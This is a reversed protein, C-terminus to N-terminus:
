TRDTQGAQARGHFFEALCCCIDDQARTLLGIFRHVHAYKGFETRTGGGAARPSSPYKVRNPIGAGIGDPQAVAKEPPRADERAAVLDTFANACPSASLVAHCCAPM